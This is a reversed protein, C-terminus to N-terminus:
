RTGRVQALLRLGMAIQFGFSAHSNEVVIAARYGDEFKRKAKSDIPYRVASVSDFGAATQFDYTQLITQHVFWGDDEIETVPGPCATVGVAFAVENVTTIGFAGMQFEAASNQDSRIAIQGVVRLVTEEVDGVLVFSGLLVKTAAAVTVFDSSVIGAWGRNPRSSSRLQRFQSRNAVPHRM